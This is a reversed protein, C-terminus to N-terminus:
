AADISSISCTRATWGRSVRNMPGGQTTRLPSTEGRHVSPVLNQPTGTQRSKGCAVRSSQRLRSAQPGGGLIWFKSEAGGIARTHVPRAPTMVSVVFYWHLTNITISKYSDQSPHKVKNHFIECLESRSKSRRNTGEVGVVRIVMLTTPHRAETKRARRTM